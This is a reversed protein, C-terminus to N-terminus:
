AKWQRTILILIEYFVIMLVACTVQSLVDPPTIIGSIVFALLIFIRRFTKLDNFDIIKYRALILIVVPFQFVLGFCFCYFLISSIYSAFNINLIANVFNDKTFDVFFGVAKFTLFGNFVVGGLLFLVISLSLMVKFFGRDRRKWSPCIFNYIQYYFIPLSVILGSFFAINITLLFGDSVGFISYNTNNKLFPKALFAIIKHRFFYAVISNIILM